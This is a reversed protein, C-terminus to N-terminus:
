SAQGPAPILGLQQFLGLWDVQHWIEVFQGNAVRAIVNGTITVHKGTAPHPAPTVLAGTNTGHATLRVVVQDAEAILDEITIQFDPFANLIGAIWQKDEERKRVQPLGPDHFIFDPTYLEDFLALNGQNWVEDILRRVLVKNEEPSM